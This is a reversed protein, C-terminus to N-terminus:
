DVFKLVRVQYLEVEQRCQHSFIRFQGGNAVVILRNIRPASGIWLCNQCKRLSKSRTGNEFEFLVISRCLGNEMTCGIQDIVVDRSGFLSKPGIALATLWDVDDFVFAIAIFTPIDHSLDGYRVLVSFVLPRIVGNQIPFVRCRESKFRGTCFPTNRILDDSTEAKEFAGFDEIDQCIQAYEGIREIRDGKPSRDVFRRPIDALLRGFLEDFEDLLLRM